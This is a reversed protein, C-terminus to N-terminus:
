QQHARRPEQRGPEHSISTFASAASVSSSSPTQCVTHKFEKGPEFFGQLRDPEGPPWYPGHINQDESQRSVMVEHGPLTPCHRNKLVYIPNLNWWSMQSDNM